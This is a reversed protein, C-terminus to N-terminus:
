KLMAMKYTHDHTVFYTAFTTIVCICGFVFINKEPMKDIVAKFVSTCDLTLNM